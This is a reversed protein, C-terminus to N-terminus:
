VSPRRNLCELPQLSTGCGTQSPSQSSFMELYLSIDLCSFPLAIKIFIVISGGDDDLLDFPYYFVISRASLLALDDMNLDSRQVIASHITVSM